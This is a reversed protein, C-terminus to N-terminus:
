WPTNEGYIMKSLKNNKNNAYGILFYMALTSVWLDKWKNEGTQDKIEQYMKATEKEYNIIYESFGGAPSYLPHRYTDAYLEGTDWRVNIGVNFQGFLFDKHKKIVPYLTNLAEQFDQNAMFTQSEIWVTGMDKKFAEKQKLEKEADRKEKKQTKKDVKSDTNTDDADLFNDLTKEAETASVEHEDETKKHVNAYNANIAKNLNGWTKKLNEQKVEDWQLTELVM